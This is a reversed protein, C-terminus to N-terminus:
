SGGASDRVRADLTRHEPNRMALWITVAVLIAILSVLALRTRTM